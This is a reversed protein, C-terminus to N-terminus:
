CLFKFSQVEIYLLKSDNFDVSYLLELNDSWKKTDDIGMITSVNRGSLFSFNSSTYVNKRIEMKSKYYYFRFISLM